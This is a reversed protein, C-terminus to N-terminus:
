PEETWRTAQRLAAQIESRAYSIQSLLQAKSNGPGCIALALETSELIRALENAQRAMEMKNM